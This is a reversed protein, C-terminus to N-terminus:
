VVIFDSASLSTVGVLAAITVPAQGGAGDADWRLAGNTTNFLFQGPANAVPNANAVLRAPDLAGPALGGGFLAASIELLDTGSAFGHIWDRDAFANALVFIDQDAGGFLVDLGAGGALHNVGSGGRLIDNGAGGSLDDNGADGFIQDNGDGGLITDDGDNGFLFDNGDGGLITDNGDGGQAHDNGSGGDLTDDGDGGYVKDNGDGGLITDDGGGGNLTDNDAGGDITDDGSGAYIIDNGADGNLTNNGEPDFIRDNGDGGFATDNGAGGFLKDDGGLGDIVDDLGYGFLSEGQDTGTITEAREEVTLAVAADAFLGGTDTARYTFGDLGVFNEAATYTFSGDPNLVLSGNAPGTLLAFSLVQGEPDSDNAGVGSAADITSVRGRAVAYADPNVVPPTNAPVDDNLITVPASPAAVTVGAPAGAITVAFTEDDEFTTDGALELTRTQSAEGVAFDVTGGLLTGPALDAADATGFVVSWTLSLAASLDGTRWFTFTLPTTGADGEVVDQLPGTVGVFAPEPAGTPEAAIAAAAPQQAASAVFAPNGTLILDIIAAEIQAPDTVGAATVAAAAQAVLDAPLDSITVAAAPFDLDTFTATTEGPGYDFLSTLDTVRWGDAFAGYLEDFAVPQVLVTGDPLALDNLPDGDFNGLLGALQGAPRAGDVAVSLDLFEGRDTIRVLENNPMQVTFTQGDFFVLGGGVAVPGVLPDIVTVVGDIRLTAPEDASVTVRSGGIGVAVGSISSVVEGVAKTRIQVELPDGAVARVATFEGVAMFDYALGDLTVLHPDAYAQTFTPFAPGVPAPPPNPIPTVTITVTATDFGGFGDTVRYVITEIGSFPKFPEYFLRGQPTWNIFGNAPGQVIADVKLAHGDPDSDNLLLGPALVNLFGAQEITFADDNAVPLANAINITITAVDFSGQGDSITYFLTDTGVAGQNAVYTFSGDAGYTAVGKTGQTGNTLTLPDLDPDSDNALLGPGALNITDGPNISFTDDVADANGNQVLALIPFIGDAFRVREVRILIDTGENGNALNQDTVEYFGQGQVVLYDARPGAFVAIDNGAGGDLLDDGEGGELEDNGEGGDLTDTGARGRLIDDGGLGLLTNAQADGGITDNGTNSGEINEINSLADIGGWGDQVNPGAVALDAVIGSPSFFYRGTDVGGAGDILDNGAWGEFYDAFATGTITDDFNSGRVSVISVLTDRNEAEGALVQVEAWGQDLNIVVPRAEDQYSAGTLYSPMGSFPDVPVPNILTDNGGLGRLWGISLVGTVLFPLFQPGTLTDAKDTGVVSQIDRDPISEVNGYPDTVVGLYLDAIVGNPGDNEENFRLTNYGSTFINPGNGVGGYYTDAGQGGYLTDNGEGGRLTDNGDQGRLADNGAGGDILDDGGEGDLRDNRATGLIVDGFNGGRVYQINVLTDTGGLGDLAKGAQVLQGGLTADADSLNVRVGTGTNGHRYDATVQTDVTLAIITDNGERGRLQVRTGDPLLKGTLTDDLASGIVMEIDNDPISEANGYGDTVQGTALNVVVGQTPNPDNQFRIIDYGAGGFYTDTDRGGSLDDDGEGGNLIDNGDDGNLSDNGGLGNLIDDLGFGNITDNGPTGDLTEAREEVTISVTAPAFAGGGDTATYTFTAVGLFGFTPTYTFSGDPNFVLTSGLGTLLAYTIPDGNPDFDNAGVGTAASTALVRGRGTAYSDDVAVAPAPGPDFGGLNDATFSGAGVGAFVLMDRFAGPGATGDRDYVLKTDAGDQVLDLFGLAFPNGSVYGATAALLDALVVTDGGAGAAFDTILDAVRDSTAAVNSLVYTDTGSGGTMTDPLTTSNAVNLFTDNGAGGIKTNQGDGGDIIDDGDGGDIIDDGAGGNISDNGDGGTVSDNGGGAIIRMAQTGLITVTDAGAGLRVEEFGSVTDTTGFGDGFTGAGNTLTISLGVANNTYSLVDFGAGAQILDNGAEGRFWGGLDNGIISDDFRSGRVGNIGVLTDTNGWGDVISASLALNAIVGIGDNGFDPDSSYDAVVQHGAGAPARLTDNGQRGQLFAVNGDTFGKGELDDALATGILMEIDNVAGLNEANGFPDTIAGTALSAVVGQTPTGDASFDILDYGAGGSYTDTGPGGSLQDDGDEGFLADDGANGRVRDNGAGGRIDDNGGEGELRENAAGGQIFDNFNSGRISVIGVFTDTGGFSDLASLAAVDTGGLNVTSSSLNVRVAATDRTYNPTATSNASPARFTDNGGEGFMSSRSGDAFTTGTLDDAFRTGIVSEISILTDTDGWPDTATGTFLNVTVGTTLPFSGEDAFILNGPGATFVTNYNVTDFGGRGDLIDAGALGRLENDLNDGRLTDAYNTGQIVEFGSLTDTSGDGSKTATNAILDVTVGASLDAYSIRDFGLGGSAINSGLGPLIIDNFDSGTITDNGAGTRIGRVGILTDTEIGGVSATGAGLNAIVALARDAYDALNLNNSLGRITDNGEGGFLHAFSGASGNGTLDDNGSGGFAIEVGLAPGNSGLRIIDNDAGGRLLDAGDGGDITDNGDGGDITDNGPGGTISDDGIGGDLVDNGDSGDITDAGSGAIVTDDGLNAFIMDGTDTADPLGGLSGGAAATRITDNGTTGTIIAM